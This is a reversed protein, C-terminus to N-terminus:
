GIFMNSHDFYARMSQIQGQRNFTMVDIVKVEVSKGETNARATFAMAAANGMSGRIETDLTLTAGMKLSSRYFERIADLGQVAASGYPDELTADSAYLAVIAELDARNFASIYSELAAKMTDEKLM